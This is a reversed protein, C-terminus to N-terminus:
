INVGSQAANGFVQRKRKSRGAATDTASDDEGGGIAVDASAEPTSSSDRVRGEVAAKESMASMVKGHQIAGENAQRQSEERGLRAATEKAQQQWQLRDFISMKSEIDGVRKKAAENQEATGRFMNRGNTFPKGIDVAKVFGM